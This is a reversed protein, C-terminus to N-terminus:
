SDIEFVTPHGWRTPTFIEFKADGKTLDVNEAFVAQGTFKRDKYFLVNHLRGLDDGFKVSLPFNQAM